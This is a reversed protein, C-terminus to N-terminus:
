KKKLARFPVFAIFGYPYDLFLSDKAPAGEPKSLELWPQMRKVDLDLWSWVLSYLVAVVNPGYLYSLMAYEPIEELSHSLALGGFKQSRQALIEISAAILLTLIIIAALIPTTMSLPKWQGQTNGIFDRAWRTAWISEKSGTGKGRSREVDEAEQQEVEMLSKWSENGTTSRVESVSLAHHDEVQTLSMM